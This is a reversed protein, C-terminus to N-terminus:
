KLTPLNKLVEVQDSDLFKDNESHIKSLLDSVLQVESPKNTKKFARIFLRKIWEIDGYDASKSISTLASM